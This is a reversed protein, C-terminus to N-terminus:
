FLLELALLCKNNKPVLTTRSLNGEVLAKIPCEGRQRLGASSWKHGHGATFWYMRLGKPGSTKREDIGLATCNMQSPYIQRAGTLCGEVL